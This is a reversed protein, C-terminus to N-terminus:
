LRKTSGCVPCCWMEQGSHSAAVDASLIKERVMEVEEHSNKLCTECFKYSWSNSRREMKDKMKERIKYFTIYDNM